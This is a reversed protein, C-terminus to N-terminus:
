LISRIVWDRDLHDLGTEGPYTFKTHELDGAWRCGDNCRLPASQALLLALGAQRAAPEQTATGPRPFIARVPAGPQRRVRLRDVQACALKGRRMRRPLRM